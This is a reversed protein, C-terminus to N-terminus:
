VEWYTAALESGAATLGLGDYDGQEGRWQLHYVDGVKTICLTGQYISDGATLFDRWRSRHNGGLHKM